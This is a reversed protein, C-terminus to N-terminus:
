FGLPGRPLFVHLWRTFVWYVGVSGVLVVIGILWPRREGLVLLCALYAPAMALVFGFPEILVASLAISGTVVLLRVYGGANITDPVPQWRRRVGQGVLFLALGGLLASLWVPFFGPGPGLPTYYHMQLALTGLVVALVLLALGTLVNRDMGIM